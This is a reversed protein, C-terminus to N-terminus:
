VVESTSWKYMIIRHWVAAQNLVSFDRYNIGQKAWSDRLRGTVDPPRLNWLYGMIGLFKIQKVQQVDENDLKIIPFDRLHSHNQFFYILNTKQINLKLKNSKIWEKVCGLDQQITQHLQQTSDEAYLFWWFYCLWM